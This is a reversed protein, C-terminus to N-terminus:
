RGTGPIDQVAPIESRQKATGIFYTHHQYDRGGRHSVGAWGGRVAVTETGVGVDSGHDLPIPTGDDYMASFSHWQELPQHSRVWLVGDPPVVIRYRGDVLPIDQGNPDLILWVTGTFGKPAVLEVPPGTRGGCGALLLTGLM